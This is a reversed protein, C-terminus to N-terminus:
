NSQVLRVRDLVQDFFGTKDLYPHDSVLTIEMELARLFVPPHATGSDHVDIPGKTEYLAPPPEQRRGARELEKQFEVNLLNTFVLWWHTAEEHHLIRRVVFLDAEHELRRDVATIGTVRGKKRNEMRKHHGNVLHGLEHGLLWRLLIDHAIRTMAALQEQSPAVKTIKGDPGVSLVALDSSAYNESTFHVKESFARMANVDCVVV